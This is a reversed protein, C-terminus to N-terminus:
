KKMGIGKGEETNQVEEKMRGEKRGETEEDTLGDKQGDTHKQTRTINTQERGPCIRTQKVTM